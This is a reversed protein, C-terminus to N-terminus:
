MGPLSNVELFYAEKGDLRLDVRGYGECGLAKFAILADNQIEEATESPIDAPCIYQSKGKTYKCTYNYLRETPKIEVIPLPTDGLISVTIERGPIYEEIIFHPSEKIAASLAEPLGSIDEVYSLGITSGSGVPKVIVPYGGLRENIVNNLFKTDPEGDEQYCFAAPIKLGLSAFIRKSTMKDMALVSGRFSSGTFPIGKMELVAQVHGDEGYSGHYAVFVVDYDLLQHCNEVVSKEDWDYSTVEYGLKMLATEVAKATNLSVEREPSSGGKIIAIKM